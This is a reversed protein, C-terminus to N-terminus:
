SPWMWGGYNTYDLGPYIQCEVPDPFTYHEVHGDFYLINQGDLHIRGYKGAYPSLTGTTRNAPWVGVGDTWFDVSVPTNLERMFLTFAAQPVKSRPMGGQLPWPDHYYYWKIYGGCYNLARGFSCWPWAGTAARDKNLDTFEACFYLCGDSLPGYQGYHVGYEYGFYADLVQYGWTNTPAAPGQPNWIPYWDDADEAYLGATVFINHYGHQCAVSRAAGRARELAPLLLAALVAIIAIVVLLEILTFAATRRRLAPRQDKRLPSFESEAFATEPPRIKLV